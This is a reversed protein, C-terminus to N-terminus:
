AAHAESIAIPSELGESQQPSSPMADKYLLGRFVIDFWRECPSKSQLRTHRMGARHICEIQVDFARETCVTRQLRDPAAATESAECARVFPRRSSQRLLSIILRQLHRALSTRVAHVSRVLQQWSAASEVAHCSLCCLSLM